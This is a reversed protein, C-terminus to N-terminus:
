DTAVGMFTSGKDTLRNSSLDVSELTTNAALGEALLEAGRDGIRNDALSLMRVCSNVQHCTCLAM